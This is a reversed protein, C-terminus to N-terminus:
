REEGEGSPKELERSTVKTDLASFIERVRLQVAKIADIVNGSATTGPRIQKLREQNDENLLAVLTGIPVTFLAAIVVLIDVGSLGSYTGLALDLKQNYTRLLQDLREKKPAEEKQKEDLERSETSILSLVTSALVADKMNKTKERGITDDYELLKLRLQEVAAAEQRERELREIEGSQEEKSVRPQREAAVIARSSDSFIDTLQVRVKDLGDIIEDVFAPIGDRSLIIRVLARIVEAVAFNLNTTDVNFEDGIIRQLDSNLEEETTSDIQGEGKTRMLIILEILPRKYEVGSIRRDKRLFPESIRRSQNYIGIRGDVIMPFLSGKKRKSEAVDGVAVSLKDPNVDMFKEIDEAKLQTRFTDDRTKANTLMETIENSQEGVPRFLNGSNFHDFRSADDTFAPLGILRYFTNIRSEVQETSNNDTNQPNAGNSRFEDITKIAQTVISTFRIKIKEEM